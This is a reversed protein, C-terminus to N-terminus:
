NFDKPQQAYIDCVMNPGEQKLDACGVYTGKHIFTCKKLIDDVNKVWHIRVIVEKLYPPKTVRPQQQDYRTDQYCGQSFLLFVLLVSANRLNKTVLKSSMKEM